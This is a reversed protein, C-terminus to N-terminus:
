HWAIYGVIVGLVCFPAGILAWAMVMMAGTTGGGSSKKPQKPRKPPKQRKPGEWDPM